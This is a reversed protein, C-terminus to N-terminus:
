ASEEIVTLSTSEPGERTMRFNFAPPQDGIGTISLRDTQRDTGPTRSARGRTQPVTIPGSPGSVTIPISEASVM